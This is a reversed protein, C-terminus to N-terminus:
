SDKNTIQLKIRSYDSFMNAHKRKFKNIYIKHGM